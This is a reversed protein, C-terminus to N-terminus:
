RQAGFLIPLGSGIGGGLSAGLSAGLPNGGTAIFGLGAGAVTGALGAATGMTAAGNARSALEQQRRRYEQAARIQNEYKQMMLDNSLNTNLEYQGQQFRNEQQTRINQRETALSSSLDTRGEMLKRIQNQYAANFYFADDESVLRAQEAEINAQIDGYSSALVDGVSGSRLRGMAAEREILQPAMEDFRRDGLERLLKIRDERPAKLENPIESVFSTIDAERKQSESRNKLIDEIRKIDSSTDQPTVMGQILGTLENRQDQNNIFNLLAPDINTQLRFGRKKTAPTFRSILEDATPYRGLQGAMEAIQYAISDVNNNVGQGPLKQALTRKITEFDIGASTKGFERYDGLRQQLEADTLDAESVQKSLIDKLEQYTRAMNHGARIAELKQPM